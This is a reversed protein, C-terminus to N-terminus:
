LLGKLRLLGYTAVSTADKIEGSILMREFEARSFARTILDQEELEPAADGQSLGTALFIDYGQCMTGHALNLRGAHLMSTAALGTEEQLEHQAALAPDTGPPGWMGQPFEWFRAKVPYRFQQVLQLSGDAHVPVVVVFDAKEVVGYIGTSGDRRRIADERVTMWANRYVVKTEITQIDPTEDPM